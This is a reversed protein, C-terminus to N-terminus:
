TTTKHQLQLCCYFHFMIYCTFCPQKRLITKLYNVYKKNAYKQGWIQGYRAPCSIHCYSITILYKGHGNTKKSVADQEPESDSDSDSGSSSSSNSDSDSSSDSVEQQLLIFYFLYIAITIM